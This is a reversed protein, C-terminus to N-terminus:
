GVARTLILWLLIGGFKATHKASAVTERKLSGERVQVQRLGIRIWKREGGERKWRKHKRRERKRRGSKVARRHTRRKGKRRRRGKKKKGKRDKRRGKRWRSVGGTVRLTKM